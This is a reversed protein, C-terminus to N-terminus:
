KNTEYEMETYYFFCFRAIIRSGKNTRGNISIDCSCYVSELNKEKKQPFYPDLNLHELLIFTIISVSCPAVEGRGGLGM